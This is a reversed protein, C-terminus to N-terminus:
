AAAQELYLRAAAELKRLTEVTPGGFGRKAADRVTMYPVGSRRAFEATDLKEHASRIVNLTDDISHM